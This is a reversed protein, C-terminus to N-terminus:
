SPRAAPTTEFHVRDLRHAESMQKQLQYVFLLALTACLGAVVFALTAVGRIPSGRYREKKASILLAALGTLACLGITSFSVAKFLLLSDV